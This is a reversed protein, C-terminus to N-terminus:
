LGVRVTERIGAAFLERDDAEGELKLLAAPGGSGREKIDKRSFLQKIIAFKGDDYPGGHRADEFLEEIEGCFTQATQKGKSEDWKTFIVGEGTYYRDSQGNTCAVYSKTYSKRSSESVEGLWYWQNVKGAMVQQIFNLASLLAGSL